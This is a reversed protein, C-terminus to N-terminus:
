KKVFFSLEPNFHVFFGEGLKEKQKKVHNLFLELEKINAELMVRVTGNHLTGAICRRKNTVTYIYGDKIAKNAKLTSQLYVGEKQDKWNNPYLDVGSYTALKKM